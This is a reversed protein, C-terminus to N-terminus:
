AKDDGFLTRAIERSAASAASRVFVKFEPSSVGDPLDDPHLARRTPQPEVGAPSAEDDRAM